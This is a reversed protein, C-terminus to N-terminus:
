RKRRFEPFRHALEIAMVLSRVWLYKAIKVVRRRWWIKTIRRWFRVQLVLLRLPSIQRLLRALDKDWGTRLKKGQAIRAIGARTAIRWNAAFRKELVSVLKPYGEAFRKVGRREITRALAFDQGAELKIRIAHVLDALEDEPLHRAATQLQDMWGFRGEDM